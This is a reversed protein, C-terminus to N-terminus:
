VNRNLVIIKQTYYVTKIDIFHDYLLFPRMFLAVCVFLLEVSVRM